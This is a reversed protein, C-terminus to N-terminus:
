IFKHLNELFIVVILFVVVFPVDTCCLVVNINADDSVCM